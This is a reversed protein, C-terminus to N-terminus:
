NSPKQPTPPINGLGHKVESIILFISKYKTLQCPKVSLDVSM